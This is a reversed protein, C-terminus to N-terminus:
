LRFFSAIKIPLEHGWKRYRDSHPIQVLLSMFGWGLLFGVIIDGPYHIGALIRSLVTLAGIV